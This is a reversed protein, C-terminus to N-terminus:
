LRQNNSKPSCIKNLLTIASFQRAEQRGKRAQDYIKIIQLMDGQMSAQVTYADFSFHTGFNIWELPISFEAGRLIHKASFSLPHTYKKFQQSINSWIPNESQLLSKYILVASEKEKDLPILLLYTKEHLIELLLYDSNDGCMREGKTKVQFILRNNSSVDTTVRLIDLEPPLSKDMFSIITRPDPDVKMALVPNVIIFFLLLTLNKM